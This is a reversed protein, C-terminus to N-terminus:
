GSVEEHRDVPDRQEAAAAPRRALEARLGEVEELVREVKDETRRLQRALRDVDRRGAIRLNRLALDIARTSLQLLAFTNEALRVLLGASDAAQEYIPPLGPEPDDAM